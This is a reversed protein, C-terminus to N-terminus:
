DVLKVGVFTPQPPDKPDANELDVEGSDKLECSSQGASYFFGRM